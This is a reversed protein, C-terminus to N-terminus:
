KNTLTKNKRRRAYDDISKQGKIEEADAKIDKRTGQKGDNKTKSKEKAFKKQRKTKQEEGNVQVETVPKHKPNETYKEKFIQWFEFEIEVLLERDERHHEIASDILSPVGLAQSLVMNQVDKRIANTDIKVLSM